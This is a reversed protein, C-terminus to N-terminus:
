RVLNSSRLEDTSGACFVGRNKLIANLDLKLAIKVPVHNFQGIFVRLM